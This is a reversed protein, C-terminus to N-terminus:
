IRRGLFRARRGSASGNGELAAMMADPRVNGVVVLVANGPVFNRNHYEVVDQRTISRVSELTGLQARAYPHQPHYSCGRYSM